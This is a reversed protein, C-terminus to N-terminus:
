ETGYIEQFHIIYISIYIIFHNQFIRDFDFFFESMETVSIM